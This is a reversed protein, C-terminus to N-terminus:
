WRVGSGSRGPGAIIWAHDPRQEQLLSFLDWDRRMVGHDSGGEKTLVAPVVFSGQKQMTKALTPDFLYFPSEDPIWGNNDEQCSRAYDVYCSMPMTLAEARIRRTGYLDALDKLTWSPLQNQAADEIILCPKGLSLYQKLFGERGLTSAKVRDMLRALRKGPKESPIYQELPTCALQLPLFLADSFLGKVRIPPLTKDVSTTNPYFHEIYTRRWSRNWSKLHGGTKVVVAEKWHSEHLAFARCAHSVAQIRAWDKPELLSFIYVLEEDSLADLLGLSTSRISQAFLANGSPKVGIPHAPALHYHNDNIRKRKLPPAPLTDSGARVPM